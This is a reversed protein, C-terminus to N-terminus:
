GTPFSNPIRFNPVKSSKRDLSATQEKKTFRPSVTHSVAMVSQRSYVSQGFFGNLNFVRINRLISVGKFAGLFGGLPVLKNLFKKKTSFLKSCFKRRMNTDRNQLTNRSKWRKGFSQSELAKRNRSRRATGASNHSNQM